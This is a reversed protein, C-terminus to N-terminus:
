GLMGKEHLQDVWLKVNADIQEACQRYHDVPMGIPDSVNGQDRRLTFTRSAASPWHSILAHRHGETLTLILDAFQIIHPSVPQSSHDEIDIGMQDMVEVSQASALNGPMAAVGASIIQIGREKLQDETCELKEAIRRRFLGEGMPSRCTNGTCVILIMLGSISKLTGEDVVGKRLLEVKDGNVKIVSSPQGMKSPGDNLILDIGEGLEEVVQDGDTAASNGSLNASTLVLPGACLRLIELTIEHAPVRLGLTGREILPLKVIEPLRHVVSDKHLDYVFTVPGPWCRRALKRQLHTMDPVYDLADDSSKIAFAFPKEEPRGKLEYLRSIASENLASAAIGYVTETPVVILKGAALTEVARLIADRVDETQKLDIVQPM